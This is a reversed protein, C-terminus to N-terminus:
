GDALVVTHHLFQHDSLLLTDLVRSEVRAPTGEPTLLFDITRTGRGERRERHNGPTNNSGRVTYPNRAPDYTPGHSSLRWGEPLLDALREKGLNFDGGVLVSRGAATESEAWGVVERLQSETIGAEGPDQFAYLHLNLLTGRFTPSEVEVALVGKQALWEITRSGSPLPGFPRFSRDAVPLRTLTVLGSANITGTVDTVGSDVVRYEPLHRALLEVMSREFVEQLLVVAPRCARVTTVLRALREERDASFAYPVLLPRSPLMWLNGQLVTFATAADTPGAAPRDRGTDREPGGPLAASRAEGSELPAPCSVTEEPDLELSQLDPTTLGVLIWLFLGLGLFTRPRRSIM